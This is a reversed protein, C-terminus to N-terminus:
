LLIFIRIQWRRVIKIMYSRDALDFLHEFKRPVRYSHQHFADASSTHFLDYRFHRKEFAKDIRELIFFLAFLIRFYLSQHPCGKRIKIFIDVDILIQRRLDKGANDADFFRSAHRIHYARMELYLKFVLLHQQLSEICLFTQSFEIGYQCLFYLYEIYFM